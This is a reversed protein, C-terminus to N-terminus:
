LDFLIVVEVYDYIYGYEFFVDIVSGFVLLVDVNFVKGGYDYGYEDYVGVEVGYDYEYEDDCNGVVLVDSIFLDSILLLKLVGESEEGM